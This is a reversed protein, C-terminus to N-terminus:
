SYNSGYGYIGCYAVSYNKACVQGCTDGGVTANGEITYVRGNKYGTVFGIHHYYFIIDGYKPKYFKRVGNIKKSPKILRNAGRKTYYALYDAVTFKTPVMVPSIGANRACWGIFTACWPRHNAVNDFYRTGFRAENLFYKCYKNDNNYGERYGIQSRAMGILATRQQKETKNPYLFPSTSETAKSVVFGFLGTSFITVALISVALIKASKRM